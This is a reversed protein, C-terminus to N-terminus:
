KYSTIKSNKSVNSHTSEKCSKNDVAELQSEDIDFLNAFSLEDKDAETSEFPDLTRDQTSADEVEFASNFTSCSNM